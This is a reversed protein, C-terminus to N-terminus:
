RSDVWARGSDVPDLERILPVPMEFSVGGSVGEADEASLEKMDNMANRELPCTASVPQVLALTEM